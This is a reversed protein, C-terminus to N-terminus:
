IVPGKQVKWGALTKTLEEIAPDKQPATVPAQQRAPQNAAPQNAAPQKAPPDEGELISITKLECIIYEMITLYPPLIHSGDVLLCMQNDRILEKTVSVGFRVGPPSQRARRCALSLGAHLVARWPDAATGYSGPM